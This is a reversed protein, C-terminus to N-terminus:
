NARLYGDADGIAVHPQYLWPRSKSHLVAYVDHSPHNIRRITTLHHNQQYVKAIRCEKDAWPITDGLKQYLFDFEHRNHQDIFQVIRITSTAAKPAAASSIHRNSRWSTDDLRRFARAICALEPRFQLLFVDCQISDM